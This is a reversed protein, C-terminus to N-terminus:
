GPYPFFELGSLDTVTLSADQEQEADFYYLYLCGAEPDYESWWSVAGGGAYGPVGEPSVEGRYIGDSRRQYVYARRAGDGGFSVNCVLERRGDGDLDVAYDEPEEWGFSEAIPTRSGDASVAYYTRQSWGYSAAKTVMVGNYGLIDVFPEEWAEAIWSDRSELAALLVALGEESQHFRALDYGSAASLAALDAEGKPEWGYVRREVAGDPGPYTWRVEEVWPLLYLAVLASREMAADLAAPDSPMFMLQFSIEEMNLIASCQGAMEPVAWPGRYVVERVANYRSSGRSLAWLRAATGEVTSAGTWSELWQLLEALAAPSAGMAKIGESFGAAVLLADAETETLQGSVGEGSVPTWTWTVKTLNERVALLVMAKKEMAQQVGQATASPADFRFSLTDGAPNSISRHNVPIWSAAGEVHPIGEDLLLNELEMQPDDRLVWLRAALTEAASVAPLDEEWLWDVLAQIGPLTKGLDHIDQYGLEWAIEDLDNSGGKTYLTHWASGSETGYGYMVQDVDGVLAPVLISAVSMANVYTERDPVECCVLLTNVDQYFPHVGIELTCQELDPVGLTELITRVGSLDQGPEAQFSLAPPEGELAHDLRLAYLASPLDWVGSEIREVLAGVMQRSVALRLVVAVPYRELFATLDERNLAGTSASSDGEPPAYAVAVAASSGLTLPAKGRLYRWHTLQASEAAETLLTPMTGSSFTMGTQGDERFVELRFTGSQQGIGERNEEMGDMVVGRREQLQGYRYIEMYFVYSRTDDPFRYDLSWATQEGELGRVYGEDPRETAGNLCVELVLLVAAVALFAVRPTEKKWKLVNKVRRAADHEGFALAAPVPRAAANAVLSLSYGRKVQDGLASLVAEDCSMEMDRCFLVWCLWVASDWWYVALICWALLKWWPDRRRIHHREHILVCTRETGTLHPPIYIRPRFFGLVFPTPVADSEWVEGGCWVAGALRRRLRVLSVIGVALVALLGLLWVVSAARLLLEGQTLGATETLTPLTSEVTGSIGPSVLVPANAAPSAPAMAAAVPPLATVVGGDVSGTAEALDYLGPLNFISLFGQLSVPCLLRFGVVLWLAYRYKRPARTLALRVALVVGMVPLAMLAMSLLRSFVATLLEM